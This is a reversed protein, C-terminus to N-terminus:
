WEFFSLTDWKGAWKECKKIYTEKDVQTKNARVIQGFMDNMGFPAYVILKNNEMRVGIATATTPWSSIADEVSNYPSLEYGFYDKYWLHVRAQNKVDFQIPLNSFEDAVKKINREESEYSLDEGDFYVLDIDSIGHM